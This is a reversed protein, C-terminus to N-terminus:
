TMSLSTGGIDVPFQALQRELDAIVLEQEVRKRRERLWDAALDLDSFGKGFELLPGLYMEQEARSTWLPWHPNIRPDLVAVMGRDDTHRLLRGRAQDLLGAADAVYVELQAESRGCGKQRMVREVRADDTVNGAARPPRDLVVLSLSEGRVDIGTMYSRTGVLVSREDERFGALSRERGSSQTFVTIGTGVLARKLDQAYRAAGNNTAAVVLARGDNALVLEIIQKAAWGPHAQTDFKKRENLLGETSPDHCGPVYVASEALGEAFPSSYTKPEAVALQAGFGLPLTASVCVVGRPTFADDPKHWLADRALGDVPIPTFRLVSTGNRSEIWRAVFSDSAELQIRQASKLATSLRGTAAQARKLQSRGELTTRSNKAVQAFDAVTSDLLDLGRKMFDEPLPGRSSPEIRMVGGKGDKEVAAALIRDLENAYESMEKDIDYDNLLKRARGGIERFSAGAVKGDGANRIGAPLAHAEDVIVHNFTGSKKTEMLVGGRAVAEIGLLAHNAVVIDAGLARARAQDYKHTFDKLDADSIRDESGASVFRWDGETADPVSKLLHADDGVGGDLYADLGRLTLERLVPAPSTLQIGEPRYEPDFGERLAERAEHLDQLIFSKTSGAHSWNGATLGEVMSLLRGPDAYHSVGTFGAFSLEVGLYRGLALAVLPLDDEILQNQLGLMETSVLIRNGAAAMLAACSLYAFSKGTGPPAIGSFTSRDLMADLIDHALALQGPRAEAGSGKESVVVQLFEDLMEHTVRIPSRGSKGTDNFKGDM